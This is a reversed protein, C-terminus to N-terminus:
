NNNNKMVNYKIARVQTSRNDNADIWSQAYAVAEERTKFNKTIPVHSRGDVYNIVAKYGFSGNKRASAIKNSM